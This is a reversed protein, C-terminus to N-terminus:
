IISSNNGIPSKIYRITSMKKYNDETKINASFQELDIFAWAVVVAVAVSGKEALERM